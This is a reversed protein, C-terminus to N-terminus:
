KKRRKRTMTKEERVMELERKLNIIKKKLLRIDESTYYIERKIEKEKDQKMKHVEMGRQKKVLQM